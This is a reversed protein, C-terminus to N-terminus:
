QEAIEKIEFEQRDMTGLPKWKPLRTHEWFENEDEISIGKSELLRYVNLTNSCYTVARDDDMKMSIGAKKRKYEFEYQYLDDWIKKKTIIFPRM